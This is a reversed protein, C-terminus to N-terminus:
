TLAAKNVLQTRLLQKIWLQTRLLRQTHKLVPTNLLINPSLSFFYSSASLIKLNRLNQEETSIIFINFIPLTKNSPCIAGESFNSIYM